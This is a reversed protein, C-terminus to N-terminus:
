RGTENCADYPTKCLDTRECGNTYTACRSNGGKDIKAVCKGAVQPCFRPSPSPTPTNSPRPYASQSPKPTATPKPTDSPKVLCKNRCLNTGIRYWEDVSMCSPNKRLYEPESGDGCIFFGISFRENGCVKDVSFDRLGCNAVAPATAQGVLNIQSPQFMNQRLWSYALTAVTVIGLILISKSLSKRINPNPKKNKPM